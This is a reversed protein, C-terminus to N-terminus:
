IVMIEAPDSWGGMKGRLGATRVRVWIRTGPTLGALTVKQGQFMGATRWLSEENPNGMCVQVENMSPRRAAQYRAVISGSLGAHELRLNEPAAPASHDPTRSTSYSPFGSQEVIGPDGEAVGNVYGGLRGLVSNLEVRAAKLALVDTAARSARASLKAKYDEVLTGLEAMGVPPTPFTAAHTSMGEHIRGAVGSMEAALHRTFDTVAKTTNM